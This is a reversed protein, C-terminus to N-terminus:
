NKEEEVGGRRWTKLKNYATEMKFISFIEADQLHTQVM